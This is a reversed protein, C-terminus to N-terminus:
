LSIVGPDPAHSMGGRDGSPNPDSSSLAPQGKMRLDSVLHGGMELVKGLLTCPEPMREQCGVPVNPTLGLPLHPPQSQQASPSASQGVLLRGGERRSGAPCHPSRPKAVLVSRMASCSRPWASVPAGLGFVFCACPLWAEERRGVKMVNGRRAMPALSGWSGTSPTPDWQIM